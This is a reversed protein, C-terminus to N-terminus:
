ILIMRSAINKNESLNNNVREEVNMIKDDDLIKYTLFKNESVVNQMLYTTGFKGSGLRKIAYFNEDSIAFLEIIERIGARESHPFLNQADIVRKVRIYIPYSFRFALGEIYIDMFIDMYATQKTHSLEIFYLLDEIVESKPYNPKTIVTENFTEVIDKFRAYHELLEVWKFGPTFQEKFNWIDSVDEIKRKKTFLTGIVHRLQFEKCLDELKQYDQIRKKNDYYYDISLDLSEVCRSIFEDIGIPRNKIRKDYSRSDIIRERLKDVVPSIVADVIQNNELARLLTDKNLKHEINM